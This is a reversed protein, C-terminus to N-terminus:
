YKRYVLYNVTFVSCAAGKLTSYLSGELQVWLGWLLHMAKTNETTAENGHM